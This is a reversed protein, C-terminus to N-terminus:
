QNKHNFQGTLHSFFLKLYPAIAVFPGIWGGHRLALRMFGGPPLGNPQSILRWRERWSLGPREWPRNLKNSSCVGYFGPIIWSSTALKTARFGYDFDAQGHTFKKGLIGIKQFVNRPVWVCNGNFTDCRIPEAGPYTCKKPFPERWSLCVRGGYTLHGDVPDCITGVLIGPQGRLAFQLHWHFFRILADSFLHTDDNLWLYADPNSKASEIWAMRMGGTWYLNGDGQLVRVWPFGARVAYGTDDTSGDDVLFIEMLFKPPLGEQASLAALCRLTTDRRNHCTMLIALRFTDAGFAKAQAAPNPPSLM